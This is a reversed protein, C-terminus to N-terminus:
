KKKDIFYSPPENYKSVYASSAKKAQNITNIESRMKELFMKGDASNKVEIDRISNTTRLIERVVKQLEKLGEIETGKLEDLSDIKMVQKFRQFYVNFEEDIKDIAEIVGQKQEIITNLNDIGGENIAKSQSHTFSLMDQLLKIKKDSLEVMRAVYKEPTIEM